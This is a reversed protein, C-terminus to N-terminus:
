PAIRGAGEASATDRRSKGRTWEIVFLPILSLLIFLPPFHSFIQSMLGIRGVRASEVRLRGSELRSSRLRFAVLRDSM